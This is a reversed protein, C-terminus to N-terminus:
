GARRVMTSGDAFRMARDALHEILHQQLLHHPRLKERRLRPELEAGQVRLKPGMAQMGQCFLFYHRVATFM